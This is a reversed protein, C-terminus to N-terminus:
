FWIPITNGFTFLWADPGPLYGLEFDLTAFGNKWAVISGGAKFGVPRTHVDKLESQLLGFTGGWVGRKGGAPADPVGLAPSVAHVWWTNMNRNDGGWAYAYRVGALFYTLRHYEKTTATNTPSSLGFMQTGTLLGGEIVLTESTDTEENHYYTTTTTSSQTQSDAHALTASSSWDAIPYGVYAEGWVSSAKGDDGKTLHMGYQLMAQAHVVHPLHFTAAVGLGLVQYPSRIGWGPAVVVAPMNTAESQEPREARAPPTESKSAVGTTAPAAPASASPESAPTDLTPTAVQQSAAPDAPAPQGYAVPAALSLNLGLGAGVIKLVGTMASRKKNNISNM